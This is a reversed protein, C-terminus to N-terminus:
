YKIKIGELANTITNGNIQAVKDGNGRSSTLFVATAQLGYNGADDLTTNSAVGGVTVRSHATRSYTGGEHFTYEDDLVETKNAGSGSITYPLAQGNINQLVYSGTVTSSGTMDGSCAVLSVFALAIMVRKM